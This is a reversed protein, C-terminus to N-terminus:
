IQKRHAMDWLMKERRIMLADFGELPVEGVLEATVSALEDISRCITTLSMIGTVYKMFDPSEIFDLNLKANEGKAKLVRNARFQTKILLDQLGGTGAHPIPAGTSLSRSILSLHLGIESILDPDLLASRSALLPFWGAKREEMLLQALQALAELLRAQARAAQEYRAKPWPGRPSFDLSALGIQQTALTNLRVNADIFQTRARQYLEDDMSKALEDEDADIAIFREIILNYLRLIDHTLGASSRRVLSRTSLPRGVILVAFAAAIGILVLLTRRWFVEIGVGVNARMALHGDMWSYGYVLLATVGFMMTPLLFIPPAHIRFFVVFFFVIGGVLM